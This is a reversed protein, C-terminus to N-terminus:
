SRVEGDQVEYWREATCEPCEMVIRVTVPRRDRWARVLRGLAWALTVLLVFASGPSGALYTWLNM